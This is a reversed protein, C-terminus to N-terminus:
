REAGCNWCEGFVAEVKEGCRGCRWSEGAVDAAPAEFLVQRAREADSDNVLWLEPWCEIGPIEGLGPQLFENRLVCALGAAELVNKANVVKALSQATYIRLVNRKGGLPEAAARLV